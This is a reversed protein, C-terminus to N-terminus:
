WCLSSQKRRAVGLGGARTSILYIFIDQQPPHVHASVEVCSGFNAQIWTRLPRMLLM